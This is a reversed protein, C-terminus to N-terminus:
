NRTSVCERHRCAHAPVNRTSPIAESECWNFAFPKSAGTGHPTAETVIVLIGGGQKFFLCGWKVYGNNVGRFCQQLAPYDVGSVGAFRVIVVDNVM